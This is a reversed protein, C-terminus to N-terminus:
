EFPYDSLSEPDFPVLAYIEGDDIVDGDPTIELLRRM